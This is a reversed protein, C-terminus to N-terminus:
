AGPDESTSATLVGRYVTEQPQALYHTADTYAHLDCHSAEPYLAMVSQALRRTKELNQISALGAIRQGDQSYVFIVFQPPAFTSTKM